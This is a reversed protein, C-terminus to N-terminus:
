VEQDEFGKSEEIIRSNKLKNSREQHNASEDNYIKTSNGRCKDRLKRILPLISVSIFRSFLLLWNIGLNITVIAAFFWGMESRTKLNDEYDTFALLTYSCALLSAENFIEMINFLKEEYPM